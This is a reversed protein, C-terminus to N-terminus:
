GARSPRTGAACPRAVQHRQGAEDGRVQEDLPEDAPARPGTPEGVLEDEPAADEGGEHREREREPQQVELADALLGVAVLHVQGADARQLEIGAADDAPDIKWASSM